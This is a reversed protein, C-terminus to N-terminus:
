KDRESLVRNILPVWDLGGDEFGEPYLEYGVFSFLGHPDSDDNESDYLCEVGMWNIPCTHEDYFYQLNSDDFNERSGKAFLMGKVVVFTKGLQLVVAVSIIWEKLPRIVCGTSSFNLSYRGGCSDCYWATSVTGGLLHDVTSTEKECHPCIARTVTTSKIPM